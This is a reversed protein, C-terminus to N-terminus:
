KPIDGMYSTHDVEKNRGMGIIISSGILLSGAIIYIITPLQLSDALATLLGGIFNIIYQPVREKFSDWTVLQNFFFILLIQLIGTVLVVIGLHRLSLILNKDIFFIIGSLLLVVFVLGTYTYPFSQFGKRIEYLMKLEQQSFAEENLKLEPPIQKMIEKWTDDLGKEIAARPLTKQEKSLSNYLANKLAPKLSTFTDQFHVEIRPNDNKGSLFDYCSVLIERVEKGMVANIESAESELFNKPLEKEQLYGRIINELLLVFDISGSQKIMFDVNLLTSNVAIVMSLSFLFICIFFGLVGIFVGKAIDM